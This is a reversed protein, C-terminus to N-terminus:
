IKVRAQAENFFITFIYIINGNNKIVTPMFYIIVMYPITYLSVNKKALDIRHRLGVNTILQEELFFVLNKITLLDSGEINM